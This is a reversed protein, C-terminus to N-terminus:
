RWTSLSLSLSFCSKESKIKCIVGVALKKLFIEINRDKFQEVKKNHVIINEWIIKM